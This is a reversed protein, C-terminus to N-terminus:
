QEARGPGDAMRRECSTVCVREGGGDRAAWCSSGGRGVAASRWVVDASPLLFLRLMYLLGGDKLGGIRSLKWKGAERSPATPQSTPREINLTFYLFHLFAECHTQNM